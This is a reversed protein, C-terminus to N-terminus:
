LYKMLLQCILSKQIIRGLIVVKPYDSRILTVQVVIICFFDATHIAIMM